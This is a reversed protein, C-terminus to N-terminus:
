NDSDDRRRLSVIFIVRVCDMKEGCGDKSQAKELYLVHCVSSASSRYVFMSELFVERPTAAYKTEM